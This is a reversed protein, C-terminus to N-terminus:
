GCGFWSLPVSFSLLQTLLLVPSLIMFFMIDPLSITGDSGVGGHPMDNCMVYADAPTHAAMCAEYVQRGAMNKATVDCLGGTFLWILSITYVAILVIWVYAIKQEAM